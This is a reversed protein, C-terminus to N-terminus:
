FAPSWGLTTLLARANATTLEAATSSFAALYTTHASSDGTLTGAAGLGKISDVVVSFTCPLAERDTYLTCNSATKNYVILMPFITSTTYSNVTTANNAGIRFQLKDTAQHVVGIGVANSSGALVNRGAGTVTTCGYWLWAVSAASGDFPGIGLTFSQVTTATINVSKRTWGTNSNSFTPSGAVVLPNAGISDALNGSPEQCLWLGSPNGSAIASVTLTTTWEASSAPCYKLSTADQTVSAM